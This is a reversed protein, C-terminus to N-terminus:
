EDERTVQFFFDELTIKKPSYSKLRAGKNVISVLIDEPTGDNIYFCISDSENEKSDILTINKESKLIDNLGTKDSGAVEYIKKESNLLTKTDGTVVLQGRNIIAVKDCIMEVESLIHSSLLVTVGLDRSLQKILVRIEQIGYPDLGNTPEDLIILEPKNLLAQAIGLRQKMGYSYNKAKDNRRNYLGVIELVEDIRKETINGSYAGFVKMNDRASLYDYFAPGEVLAGVKQLVKNRNEKISTGDIYVEGENPKILGLIMRISTTKGAGNPGLFGFITGAEIKLNLNQVAVFKNGFIKTLNKTELITKTM